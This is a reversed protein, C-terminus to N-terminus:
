AKESAKTEGVSGTQTSFQKLLRKKRKSPSRKVNRYIEQLDQAIIGRIKKRVGALQRIIGSEFKNAKSMIEDCRRAYSWFTWNEYEEAKEQFDEIKLFREIVTNATIYPRLQEVSKDPYRRIFEQIILRTRGVLKRYFGSVTPNRLLVRQGDFSFGLYEFPKRKFDKDSVSPPKVPEYTVLDGRKDFVGCCTKEDKIKLMDGAKSLATNVFSSYSQIINGSNTSGKTPIILVIDDSYRKYTGGMSKVWTNIEIDFNLLALNALLDSIPSGQPIGFPNKNKNALPAIKERFVSPSCLQVQRHDSPRPVIELAKDLDVVSYNTIGKFVKLHDKPLTSVGLLNCWLAYLKSHDIHEFFGSIDLALALCPAVDQIACFVDCAHHINCKGSQPRDPVPIKRYAIAVEDIGATRLREEYNPLLLKRYAQFIASDRRSAYRIDREKTKRPKGQRKEKPPSFRDIKKTYGLFPYFANKAVAEPDNVIRLIEREKLFADFHLYTKQEIKEIM